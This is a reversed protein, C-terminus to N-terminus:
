KPLVVLQSYGQLMELAHQFTETPNEKVIYGAINKEYASAIDVPSNSTTLVFIVLKSFASDARVIDLFELGGMKPMNLDLTVIFPPLRGDHEKAERLIKLAQVGDKAVTVQNVLNLKKISRTIALVSIDDDDVLLFHAPEHSENIGNHM